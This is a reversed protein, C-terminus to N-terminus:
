LDKKLMINLDKFADSLAVAAEYDLMKIVLKDLETNSKRTKYTIINLFATGNNRRSVNHFAVVRSLDWCYRDEYYISGKKNVSNIKINNGDFEAALGLMGNNRDVGFEKITNIIFSKVEDINQYKGFVDEKGNSYTIKYIDSKRLSHIPGDLNDSEKYTIEAGGVELVKADFSAGNKRVVKDQSYGLIGVLLLSLTYIKTKM